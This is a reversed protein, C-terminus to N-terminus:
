PMAFPYHGEIVMQKRRVERLDDYITTVRRIVAFRNTESSKAVHDYEVCAAISLSTLALAGTASDGKSASISIHLAARLYELENSIIVFVSSRKSQRCLVLRPAENAVRIHPLCDVREGIEELKAALEFWIFGIHNGNGVPYLANRYRGQRPM